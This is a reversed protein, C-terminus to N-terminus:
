QSPGWAGCMNVSFAMKKEYNEGLSGGQYVIKKRLSKNIIIDLNVTATKLHM